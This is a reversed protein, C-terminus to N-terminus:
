TQAPCSTLAPDPSDSGADHCEPARAPRAPLERSYVSRYGPPAQPSHWLQPELSPSRHACQPLVSPSARHSHERGSLPTPRCTDPFNDSARLLLHAWPQLLRCSPSRCRSLNELVSYRRAARHAHPHIPAPIHSPALASTTEACPKATAAVRAPTCR